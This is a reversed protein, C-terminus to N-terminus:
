ESRSHPFSDILRDRSLDEVGSYTPVFLMGEGAAPTAFHNLGDTPREVVVDGNSPNM